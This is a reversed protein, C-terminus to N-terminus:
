GSAIQTFTDSPDPFGNQSLGSTADRWKYIYWTNTYSSIHPYIVTNFYVGAALTGAWGVGYFVYIKHGAADQFTEIMFYDTGDAM